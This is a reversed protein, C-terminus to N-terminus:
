RELEVVRLDRRVFARRAADWAYDRQELRSPCCPEEGRRWRPQSVTLTADQARAQGRYLSQSRFVARLAGEAAAEGSFVYVAVVGAAGGNEVTVIADSRGDGTLDTFRPRPSVFGADTRLLRKVAATTGDDARLLDEFLEQPSREADEQAAVGGAAALAVLLAAVLARTM